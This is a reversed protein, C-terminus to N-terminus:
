RPVPGQIPLREGENPPLGRIMDQDDRQMMAELNVRDEEQRDHFDLATILDRRRAMERPARASVRPQGKHLAYLLPRGSFPDAAFARGAFRQLEDLSAPWARTFEKYAAAMVAIDAMTWQAEALLFREYLGSLEPVLLPLLPNVGAGAPDAVLKRLHEDAKELLPFARDYPQEMATALKDCLERYEAVWGRLRKKQEARELTVLKDVAPMLAADGYLRKLKDPTDRIDLELWEAYRQSEKRLYDGIPFRPRDLESLYDSLIKVARQPPERSCFGEIELLVQQLVNIAARAHVWTLDEHVHDTMQLLSVYITATLRQNEVFEAAKAAALARLTLPRVCMSFHDDVMPHNTPPDFLCYSKAGAAELAQLMPREQLLWRAMHPRSSFIRPPLVLLPVEAFEIFQFEEISLPPQMLAAARWYDMAANDFADITAPEGGAVTDAATTAVGAALTWALCLGMRLLQTPANTQRTKM